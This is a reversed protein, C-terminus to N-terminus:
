FLGVVLANIYAYQIPLHVQHTVNKPNVTVTVDGVVSAALSSVLAALLMKNRTTSSVYM